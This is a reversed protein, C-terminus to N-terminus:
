QGGTPLNISTPYLFNLSLCLANSQHASSHNTPTFSFRHYLTFASVEDLALDDGASDARAKGPGARDIFISMEQLM